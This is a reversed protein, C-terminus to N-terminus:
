TAAARQSFWDLPPMHSCLLRAESRASQGVQRGRHRRPDQARQRPPSNLAPLTRCVNAVYKRAVNVSPPYFARRLRFQNFTPFKDYKLWTAVQRWRRLAM